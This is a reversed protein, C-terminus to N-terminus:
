KSEILKGDQNFYIWNGNKIRRGRLIYFKINGNVGEEIISSDKLEWNKLVNISGDEFHKEFQYYHESIPETGTAIENEDIKWLTDVRKQIHYDYTFTDIANQITPKLYTLFISDNVVEFKGENVVTALNTYSTMLFTSDSKFILQIESGEFYKLSYKGLISEQNYSNKWIFLPLMYIFIAFRM